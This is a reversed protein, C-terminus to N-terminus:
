NIFLQTHFDANSIKKKKECNLCQANHDVNKNLNWQEDFYLVNNVTSDVYNIIFQSDPRIFINWRSM